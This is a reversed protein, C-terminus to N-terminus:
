EARKRQGKARRVGARASPGAQGPGSNGHPLYELNVNSMAHYINGRVKPNKKFLGDLMNRIEARQNKSASPCNTPLVPMGLNECMKLINRAPVLALPRIM